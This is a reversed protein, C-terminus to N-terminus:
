QSAKKGQDLAVVFMKAGIPTMHSVVVGRMEDDMFLLDDPGTIGLEDHICKSLPDLSPDRARVPDHLLNWAAAFHSSPSPSPSPSSIPTAQSLGKQPSDVAGGDSGGLIGIALSVRSAKPFAVLYRWM